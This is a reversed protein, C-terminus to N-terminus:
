RFMTSITSEMLAYFQESTCKTRMWEEEAAANGIEQQQAKLSADSTVLSAGLQEFERDIKMLTRFIPSIELRREQIQLIGNGKRAAREAQMDLQEKTFSLVEAGYSLCTSLQDGSVTVDAGVGMPNAKAGAQPVPATLAATRKM